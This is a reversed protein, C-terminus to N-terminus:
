NQLSSISHQNSFLIYSRVDNQDHLQSPYIQNVKYVNSWRKSSIHPYISRLFPAEEQSEARHVMKFHIYSFTQYQGSCSAMAVSIVVYNHVTYVYARVYTHVYNCILHGLYMLHSLKFDYQSFMINIYLECQMSFCIIIHM